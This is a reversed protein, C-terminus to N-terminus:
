IEMADDIDLGSIGDANGGFIGILIAVVGLALMLGGILLFIPSYVALYSTSSSAVTSVIGAAGVDM